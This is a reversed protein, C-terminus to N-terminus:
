AWAEQVWPIPCNHPKHSGGFNVVASKPRTNTLNRYNCLFDKPLMAQLFPASPYLEEICAQDGHRAHKSLLLERRREFNSWVFAAMGGGIVMVSSNFKCPYSTVGALRVFSECIAFEGPVLALADISDIIVTDLDFFVVKMDSRWEPAFLIMKAWWGTLGISAVDIFAVGECREPQDTLCVMTYPRNINRAVMNRLKVVYEFTYATGTRVCAIILDM